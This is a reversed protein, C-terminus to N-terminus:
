DARQKMEELLIDLNYQADAYGNAASKEYWYKAKEKDNKHIGFNGEDYMVALNYQAVGNGLEASKELYEVGQDSNGQMFNMLSLGNYARAPEDEIGQEYWDLAKDYDQPVGPGGGRYLEGLNVKAELSGKADALQYYEAAKKYDVDVGCGTYYLLGLGNIAKENDQKAASEFWYKAKDCDETQGASPFLYLAGINYEKEAQTLDEMAVIQCQTSDQSGSLKCEEEMSPYKNGQSFGTCATLVVAVMIFVFRM